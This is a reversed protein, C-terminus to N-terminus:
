RWEPGRLTDDGDDEDEQRPEPELLEPAPIDDEPQPSSKNHAELRPTRVKGFAKHKPPPGEPAAEGADGEEWRRKLTRWEAGAPNRSDVLALGDDLVKRAREIRGTRSLLEALRTRAEVNDPEEKLTWEYREIATVTRGKEEAAKAREVPDEPEPEPQSTTSFIAALLQTAHYALLPAYLFLAGVLCFLYVILYGAGGALGAGGAKGTPGGAFWLGIPSLMALLFAVAAVGALPHAFIGAREPDFRCRRGGVYAVIGVIVVVYPVFSILTQM